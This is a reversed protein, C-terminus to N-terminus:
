LLAYQTTGTDKLYLFGYTYVATRGHVNICTKKINHKSNQKTKIHHVIDSLYQSISTKFSKKIRHTCRKDSIRLCETDFRITVYCMCKRNGTTSINYVNCTYLFPTYLATWYTECKCLYTFTYTYNCTYTSSFPMVPQTYTGPYREQFVRHLLL